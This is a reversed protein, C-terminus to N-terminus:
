VRALAKELAEALRKYKVGRGHALGERLISVTAISVKVTM